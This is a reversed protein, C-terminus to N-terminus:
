SNDHNQCVPTYPSNSRGCLPCLWGTLPQPEVDTHTPCTENHLGNPWGCLPCFTFKTAQPQFMHGGLIQVIKMM